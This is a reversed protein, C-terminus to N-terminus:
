RAEAAFQELIWAAAYPSSRLSSHDVAPAGSYAEEFLTNTM